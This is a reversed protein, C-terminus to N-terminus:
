DNFITLRLNNTRTTWCEVEGESNREAEWKFDRIPVQCDPIFRLSFHGECNHSLESIEASWDIGNKSIWPGDTLWGM